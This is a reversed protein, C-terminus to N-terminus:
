QKYSSLKTLQSDAAAILMIMHTIKRRSVRQHLHLLVIRVSQGFCMRRLEM